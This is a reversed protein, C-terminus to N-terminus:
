SGVRVKVIGSRESRLSGIFIKGTKKGEEPVEGVRVCEREGEKLFDIFVEGKEGEPVKGASM